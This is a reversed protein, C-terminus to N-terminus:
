LYGQALTFLCQLYFLPPGVMIFKGKWKEILLDTIAMKSNFIAGHKRNKATLCQRVQTGWFELPCYWQHQKLFFQSKHSSLDPSYYLKLLPGHGFLHLWVCSTIISSASGLGTSGPLFHKMTPSHWTDRFTHHLTCAMWLYYAVYLSLPQGQYIVICGWSDLSSVLFLAKRKWNSFFRLRLNRWDPMKSLGM